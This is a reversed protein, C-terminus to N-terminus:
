ADLRKEFWHHAYPQDNFADIEQYDAARYLNIAESLARHTDLRVVKMERDRALQELAQLIRRGIGLRRVTPSVWMRKIEAYATGHFKIAGCGIPRGDLHAVLLLGRPESLEEATASITRAPDFGAEFRGNLEAFYANLCHKADPGTPDTIGLEVVNMKTEASTVYRTPALGYGTAETEAIPDEPERLAPARELTAGGVGTQFRSESADSAGHLHAAPTRQSCIITRM